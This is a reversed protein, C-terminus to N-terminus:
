KRGRLIQATLVDFERNARWVYVGTLVIASLIVGLGVPLGLSIASGMYAVLYWGNGLRRNVPTGFVLLTLMNGALHWLDAHGFANGSDNRTLGANPWFPRCFRRLFDLRM